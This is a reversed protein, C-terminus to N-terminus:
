PTWILWMASAQVISGYVDRYEVTITQGALQEMTPRPIEIIAPQPLGSTSFDYTLIEIGESLIAIEDDVLVEAVTDPRSSLYFHGSSPLITPIHLSATYFVEGTYNAQRASITDGIHLPFDTYNNMTIPLYVSRTVPGSVMVIVEAENDGMDADIVTSVISVTNTLVTGNEIDHNVAGTITIVGGEGPNLDQVEWTFDIGGVPTITAGTYTYSMSNLSNPLIDTIIPAYAPQRGQNSFVITYTLTQGPMVASPTVYKAISLDTLNQNLHVTSPNNVSTIFADLDGDGDLDGIEVDLGPNLVGTRTFVGTGDNTWVLTRGNAAALADLDGDSDLDGFTVDNSWENGLDQGSDIFNGAGDNLWLRDPHAWFNAVFADADGDGDVDGLATGLGWSSGIDQYHVLTGKGTNLWIENPNGAGASYTACFADLDGDLDLDGFEPAAFRYGPLSQGSEFRGTSDNLWIRDSTGSSSVVIADLDGDGDLDGLRVRRSYESGLRQGSDVFVGHGNNWWVRDPQGRNNAVFADLDGDRDLDGLAVGWGSENGLRQGSDVFTGDGENLLVRDPLGSGSAGTTMYADLDGDGDLDGLATDSFRGLDQDTNVFVGSGGSPSVRFQWVTPSVPGTGDIQSLTGTTASVQVLEGAHFPNIPEDYTLSITVSQPVTHDNAMPAFDPNELVLSSKTMGAQSAPFVLVALLFGVGLLLAASLKRYNMM